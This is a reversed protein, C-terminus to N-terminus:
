NPGTYGVYPIITIDMIIFFTGMLSQDTTYVTIRGPLPTSYYL